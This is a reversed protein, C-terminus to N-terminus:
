VSIQYGIGMEKVSFGLGKFWDAVSKIITDTHVSAAIEAGSRLISVCSLVERYDSLTLGNLNGTQEINNLVAQAANIKKAAM